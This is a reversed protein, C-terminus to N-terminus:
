RGGLRGVRSSRCQSAPLRDFYPERGRAAVLPLDGGRDDPPSTARRTVHKWTVRVVVFGAASPAADREPDLVFEIRSTVHFEWGDCEVVVVTGVIRFDVALGEIIPRFEAPPPDDRVPTEGDGARSRRRGAQRRPAM